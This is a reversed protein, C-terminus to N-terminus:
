ENLLPAADEGGPATSRLFILQLLMLTQQTKTTYYDPNPAAGVGRLLAYGLNGFFPTGRGAFAISYGYLAWLCTVVAMLVFSQMM